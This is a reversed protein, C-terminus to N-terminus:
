TGGERGVHLTFRTNHSLLLCFEHIAVNNYINRPLGERYGVNDFYGRHINHYFLMTKSTNNFCHHVNVNIFMSMSKMSIGANSDIACIIVFSWTSAFQLALGAVACRNRQMSLRLSSNTFAAISCVRFLFFYCLTRAIISLRFFIFISAIQYSQFCKDELDEVDPEEQVEEAPAMCVNFMFLIAAIQHERINVRASVSSSGSM